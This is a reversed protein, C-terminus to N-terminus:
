NFILLQLSIAPPGGVRLNHQAEPLDRLTYDSKIVSDGDMRGLDYATGPAPAM